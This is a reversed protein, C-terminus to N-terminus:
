ATHRAHCDQMSRVAGHAHRRVTYVHTPERRVNHDDVDGCVARILPSIPPMWTLVPLSKGCHSGIEFWMTYSLLGYLEHQTTHLGLATHMVVLAQYVRM